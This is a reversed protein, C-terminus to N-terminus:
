ATWRSHHETLLTNPLYHQIGQVLQRISISLGKAALYTADIDKLAFYHTEPCLLSESQHHRQCQSIVQITQM